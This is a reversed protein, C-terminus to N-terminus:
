IDNPAVTNEDAPLEGTVQNSICVASHFMWSKWKQAVELLRKFVCVSGRHWVSPCTVASSLLLSWQEFHFNFFFFCCCCRCMMTGSPTLCQDLFGWQKVDERVTINECDHIDNNNNNVSYSSSLRLQNIWCLYELCDLHQWFPFAAPIKPSRSTTLNLWIPHFLCRSGEARLDVPESVVGGVRKGRQRDPSWGPQPACRVPAPRAARGPPLRPLPLLLFFVSSSSSTCFCCCRPPPPPIWATTPLVSRLIPQGVASWM